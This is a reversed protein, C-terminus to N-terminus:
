NIGRRAREYDEAALTIRITHIHEKRTTNRQLDDTINLSDGLAEFETQACGWRGTREFRHKISLIADLGCRLIPVLAPAYESAMVYGWNLRRALLQWTSEDATGDRLKDLDSHPLLQLLTDVEASQRYLSTLAHKPKPRYPRKPPKSKPMAM